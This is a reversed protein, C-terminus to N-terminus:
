KTSSNVSYNDLVSDLKRLITELKMSLADSRSKFNYSYVETVLKRADILKQTDFEDLM